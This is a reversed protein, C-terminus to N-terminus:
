LALGLRNCTARLRVRVLPLRIAGAGAHSLSTWRKGHTNFKGLVPRLRLIIKSVCNEIMM